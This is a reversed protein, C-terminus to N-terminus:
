AAGAFHEYLFILVGIVGITWFIRRVVREGPLRPIRSAASEIEADIEDLSQKPLTVKLYIAYVVWVALIFMLLLGAWMSIPPNAYRVIPYLILLGGLAVYGLAKSTM